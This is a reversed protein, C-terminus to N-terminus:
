RICARFLLAYVRALLRPKADLFCQCRLIPPPGKGLLEHMSDHGLPPHHAQKPRFLVCDALNLAGCISAACHAGSVLSSITNVASGPFCRLHVYIRVHPQQLPCKPCTTGVRPEGLRRELGAAAASRPAYPAVHQPIADGSAACFGLAIALRMM